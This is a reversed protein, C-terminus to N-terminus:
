IIRLKQQIVVLLDCLQSLLDLSEVWKLSLHDLALIDHTNAPVIHSFFQINGRSLNAMM